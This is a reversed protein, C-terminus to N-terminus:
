GTLEEFLVAQATMQDNKYRSITVDVVDLSVIHIINVLISKRTNKKFETDNRDM